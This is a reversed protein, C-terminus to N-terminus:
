LTDRLWLKYLLIRLFFKFELVFCFCYARILGMDIEVGMSAERRSKFIKSFLVDRGGVTHIMQNM